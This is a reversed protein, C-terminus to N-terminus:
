ECESRVNGEEEISNWLMDDDTEDVATFMCSKKYSECDSSTLHAAKTNHDVNVLYCM